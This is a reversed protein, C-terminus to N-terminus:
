SALRVMRLVHVGRGKGRRVGVHRYAKDATTIEAGAKVLKTRLRRAHSDRCGLTALLEGTITVEYVVLGEAGELPWGKQAELLWYLRKGLESPIQRHLIVWDVAKVQKARLREILGSGLTVKVTM